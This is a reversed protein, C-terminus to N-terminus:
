REPANEGVIECRCAIFDDTANLFPTGSSLHFLPNATISFFCALQVSTSFSREIRSISASKLKQLLIKIPFRIISRTRVVPCM